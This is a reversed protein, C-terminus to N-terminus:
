PTWRYVVISTGNYDDKTVVYEGNSRLVSRLGYMSDVDNGVYVNSPNSNILTNDLSGTTLNFADINPVTHVYGVFLYNGAATMSKPNTSTLNIVVPNTQNGAKWGHYVEVRTGISTWDTGAINALILTDSEPLYVIRGPTGITTPIPWSQVAGWQPTGDAAFGMLHWYCITTSCTNRDLSAWVGGQSDLAFGKRIHTSAMGLVSTVWGDPIAIYGSVSPNFHEIAFNDPNQDTSALIRNGGVNAVMGFHLGRGAYTTSLRLDNPYTFPDVTNAVFTWNSGGTGSYINTGSYFDTADTAPDPAGIAEFNFAQLRYKLARTADYAYIDTGGTRGHDWSGGWPQSLIYINGASDRGIGDIRAFRLSGVQGKIGTTVDLYGGKIGFTSVQTYTRTDYIKVQQDPGADGIWLYQTTPDFYLAHPQVGAALTVTGLSQGALNFHQLAGETEQAIILNGNRDFAIAGPDTVAIDLIWAGDTKYVRVRNGPHDSAAWYQGWTAIGTIVDARRETTDASVQIQQDNAGTARIYRFVMGNVFVGNVRGFQRPAWLYMANGTIASGQPEGHAGISGANAGDKYIAIGGENEDWMSATYITGEPAVWMSRAANGVHTANTGFTNAIWDTTYQGQCQPTITGSLVAALFAAYIRKM